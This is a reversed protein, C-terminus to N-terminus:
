DVSHDATNMGRPTERYRHAKHHEAKERFMMADAATMLRDPHSEPPSSAWGVSASVTGGETVEVHQLYRTLEHAYKELVKPHLKRCIVVFEDGGLRGPTWDSPCWDRLKQAVDTLAKDGMAHGFVDNIAKFGNLDVMLVGIHQKKANAQAFAAELTRYIGTRNLLGTLPDTVSSREASKRKRQLGVLIAVFNLLSLLFATFQAIRLKGVVEVSQAELASTFRNMSELFTLNNTVLFAAFRQLAATDDPVEAFHEVQALVKSVHEQAEGQVPDLWVPKGNGGVAKGGNAFTNLTQTFLAYAAHAELVAAHREAEPLKRNIALLVAKTARQSLMRQRGALNIAVADKEVQKSISYGFALTGFDLVVFLAVALMM